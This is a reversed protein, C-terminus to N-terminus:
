ALCKNKILELTATHYRIGYVSLVSNKPYVFHLFAYTDRLFIPPFFPVSQNRCRDRFSNNRSAPSPGTSSPSTSAEDPDEAELSRNCSRLPLFLLTLHMFIQSWLLFFLLFHYLRHSTFCLSVQQTVEQDKCKFFFFVNELSYRVQYDPPHQQRYSRERARTTRRSRVAVHLQAPWQLGICVSSLAVSLVIRVAQTM